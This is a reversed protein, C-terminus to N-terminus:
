DQKEDCIKRRTRWGLFDFDIFDILFSFVTYLVKKM